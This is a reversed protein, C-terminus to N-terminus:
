REYHHSGIFCGLEVGSADDIVHDGIYGPPCKSFCHKDPTLYLEVGTASHGCKVCAKKGGKNTHPFDKGAENRGCPGAVATQSRRKALTAGSDPHRVDLASVASLCAVLSLTWATLRM